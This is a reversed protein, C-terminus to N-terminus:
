WRLLRRLDVNVGTQIRYGSPLSTPGRVAGEFEFGGGVTLLTNGGGEGLPDHVRIPTVVFGFFLRGTPDDYPSLDGARHFRQDHRIGVYSQVLPDLTQASLRTLWVDRGHWRLEARADFLLAWEAIGNAAADAIDIRTAGVRGVIASEVAGSVRNFSFSQSVIWASKYAPIAASAPSPKVM